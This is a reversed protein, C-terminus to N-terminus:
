CSYTRSSSVITNHSFSVYFRTAWDFVRKTAFVNAGKMLTILGEKAVVDAGIRFSLMTTRLMSMQERFVPNTMVRTKLLLTPSLVFGQFGGAIGGALTLAAQKPLDGRDVLPSLLSSAMSNALGFVGGKFVSQVVGWPVFGDWIGAIGKEATITKVVDGYTTGQPSTQMVIKVFELFHGLALEYLVTVIAAVVLRKAFESGMTAAAGGRLSLAASYSPSPNSARSATKHDVENARYQQSSGTAAYALTRSRRLSANSLMSSHGDDDDDEGDDEDDSDNFDYESEFGHTEIDFEPVAAFSSLDGGGNCTIAETSVVSGGEYLLSSTVVSPVSSESAESEDDESYFMLAETEASVNVSDQLPDISVHQNFTYQSADSPLFNPHNNNDSLAESLPCLLLSTAAVAKGLSAMTMTLQHTIELDATTTIRMNIAKTLEYGIEPQDSAFSEHTMKTHICTMTSVETKTPIRSFFFEEDHGNCMSMM